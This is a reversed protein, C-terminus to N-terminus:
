SVVRFILNWIAKKKIQLDTYVGDDAKLRRCVKKKIGQFECTKPLQRISLTNAIWRLSSPDYGRKM